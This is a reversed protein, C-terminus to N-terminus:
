LNLVHHGQFEPLLLALAPLALMAAVRFSRLDPDGRLPPRDSAMSTGEYRGKPHTALPENSTAPRTAFATFGLGHDRVARERMQADEIGGVDAARHRPPDQRVQSGVHELDLPWLTIRPAVAAREGPARGARMPGKREEEAM